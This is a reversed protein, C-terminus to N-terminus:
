SIEDYVFGYRAMAANTYRRDDTVEKIVQLCDPISFASDETELEVEVFARDDWEPFVDVEFVHEGSPLCYRVKRITRTDPDKQELLDKYEEESVLREREIRTRDTIREKENYWYETKDPYESMRVRRSMGPESQLYTQCIAAKTSCLEEMEVLDPYRILFKREIELPDGEMREEPTKEM